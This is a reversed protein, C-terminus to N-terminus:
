YYEILIIDNQELPEENRWHLLTGDVHYDTNNFNDIAQGNLIVKHVNTIDGMNLVKQGDYGVAFPKAKLLGPHESQTKIGKEGIYKYFVLKPPKDPTVEHENAISSEQLTLYLSYENFKWDRWGKPITVNLHSKLIPRYADSFDSAMIMDILEPHTYTNRKGPVAILTLEHRQIVGFSAGVNLTPPNMPISDSQSWIHKSLVSPNNDPTNWFDQGVPATVPVSQKNDLTRRIKSLESNLLLAADAADAATMFDIVIPVNSAKQYIVVNSGSVKITTDPEKIVYKIQGSADKIKLTLDSETVPIIFSNKLYTM